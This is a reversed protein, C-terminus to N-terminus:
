QRRARFKQETVAIYITRELDIEQRGDVTAANTRGWPMACRFTIETVERGMM